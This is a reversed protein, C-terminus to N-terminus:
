SHQEDEWTHVVSELPWATHLAPEESSEPWHSYKVVVYTSVSRTVTVEVPLLATEEGVEVSEGSQLDESPCVGHPSIQQEAASAHLRSPFHTLDPLEGKSEIVPGDGVGGERGVLVSPAVTVDVTDGVVVIAYIGATPVSPFLMTPIVVPLPPKLPPAIAPITTPERAPAKTSKRNHTQKQTPLQTSRM